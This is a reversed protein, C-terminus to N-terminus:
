EEATVMLSHVVGDEEYLVFTVLTGIDPIEDSGPVLNQSERNEALVRKGYDIARQKGEESLQRRGRHDNRSGDDDVLDAVTSNNYLQRRLRNNCRCYSDLETAGYKEAIGYNVEYGLDELGALTVRTIPLTGSAAPTM